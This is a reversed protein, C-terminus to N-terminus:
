EGTNDTESHSRDRAHGVRNRLMGIGDISLEVIDGARLWGHIEPGLELICGSGVTGSGIVDGARVLSDRSAYAILEHFSWHMDRWNGESYLRGNVRATMSADYRGATGRSSLEDPTVIWPGLSTAFDKGKAPGLGVVMERRQLDRASWDNMITYGLLHADVDGAALDRGDTSVVAAVELEFDLVNTATPYPIDDDPGYVTAPNSFYFVPSQYWEDIMPLNRRARANRVHSEFAYFDRVAPPAPVPSRLRVDALPYAVPEDASRLEGSSCHPEIAAVLDRLRRGADPLHRLVGVLDGPMGCLGTARAVPANRQGLWDYAAALDVVLEGGADTLLAAARIRRDNGPVSYSAFRM